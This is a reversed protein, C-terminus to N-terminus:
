MHIAKGIAAHAAEMVAESVTPHPHITHAIEDVTSELAKGLTFEAIMETAKAGIIHVGLLEHYKPDFLIKVFGETSGEIAAKAIPSFPFKGSKYEIGKAKLEEETMGVSAIEPHTYVANPNAQYNIPKPTKGAIIEVAHLAEATATHALAPTTLIDGIAFINPVSTRYHSDTAICGREDASLGVKELGVNKTAPARGISVLVKDFKRDDKGEVGVVCHDGKEEIKTIKASTEVTVNQKKVAKQLEKAAEADCSPVINPAMEVVTVKCGFRGFMSAFEMGVIGGGVICMTQPVEEIFLATDSTHITKGNSLAFPLERVISGMALLTNKTTITKKAGSEDTIEVSTRSALAGSGLHVDIKNKKMLFQLGKRQKDVIDQKRTLIRNWDYSPSGIEFGLSEAKQIKEWTKASELLAKTPICGVNLCTGGLHGGTRKEVLAVKMGLQSAKIAGAYGGPGAGIVVLDYSESM